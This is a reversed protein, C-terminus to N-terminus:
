QHLPKPLALAILAIDAIILAPVDGLLHGHEGANTLAQVTM